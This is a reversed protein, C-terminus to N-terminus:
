YLRPFCPPARGSLSEREIAGAFLFESPEFLRGVTSLSASSAAPPFFLLFDISTLRDSSLRASIKTGAATGSSKREELLLAQDHLDDTMSIVFFLIVLTCAMAIIKRCKRGPHESAASARFLMVMQVLIGAIAVCIWVLNLTLEM